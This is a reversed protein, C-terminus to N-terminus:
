TVSLSLILSARRNWDIHENAFSGSSQHHRQTNLIRFREYVMEM